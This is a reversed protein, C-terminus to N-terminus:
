YLYDSWGPVRREGQRHTYRQDYVPKDQQEGAWVDFDILFSLLSTFYIKENNLQMLFLDSAFSSPFILKFTRFRTFPSNKKFFHIKQDPM